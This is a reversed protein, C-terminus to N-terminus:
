FPTDDEIPDSHAATAQGSASQANPQLVRPTGSESQALTGNQAIAPSDTPVIGCSEPSPMPLDQPRLHSSKSKRKGKSPSVSELTPRGLLLREMDFAERASAMLRQIEVSDSSSIAM